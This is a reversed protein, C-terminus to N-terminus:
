FDFRGSLQTIRPDRTDTALGFTADNNIDTGVKRFNTHNLVNFFSAQLTFGYKEAFRFSKIAAVDVDAYGPGYLANRQVPVNCWLGNNVNGPCSYAGWSGARIYGNAPSVGHNISSGQSGTGTYIARENGRTGDKNPDYSGSTDKVTLPNGTQLEIIPAIQWGGLWPNKKKWPVEYNATLVFRHRVDFDAPGYDYAPNYSSTVGTNGNRQSFVDSIQDMAKSFTYNALLQLGSAYGKRLSLQGGSYNSSFINTRFNDNGFQTTARATSFGNPFGAATCAALQAGTATAPCASRGNFTNINMLGVLKRGFTGIYNAELVYGHAIQTEVGLHAQEYYATVLRQDIHRPVPLAGASALAANATFPVQYLTTRLNPDIPATGNGTGFANDVFFPANFRINEYVNNYLRDYGLGFGGRVVFKGNGLTDLSFGFRPAFNNTDKNWINHDKQIFQAGQLAGFLSDSPLFPNGTPTPTGFTGFYVNSDVGAKFNHPPGFYEWRLGYNLTLRPSIKWDSQAYASFENARYGRYPDPARKNTPDYAASAGYLSGDGNAGSFFQDQDEDALGDTLLGDVSWPNISGYFDNYFSSGNRTRAFRFGFKLTQKGVTKTLSDEYSFQNDTFSQPIGASAGFGTTLADATTISSIGQTGPAAFNAVHRLYSAKFVNLLTPTFTRTWTAGFIQSGGVVDEPPGVASDGGGNNQSTTFQDVIYSFSLQDKETLKHDLKFSGRNQNTQITQIVNGQGYVPVPFTVLKSSYDGGAANKYSDPITALPFSGPFKAYLQKFIPGLAGSHTFAGPCASGTKRQCVGAPDSEMFTRYQGSDVFDIFQQTTGTYTLPSGTRLRHFEATAFFFTKDKKIPGGLSGGFQNRVLHDRLGSQNSFYHNAALTQIRNYGFASGHWNNSGSKLVTDTAFGGARGYEAPPTSTIVRYEQIADPSITTVAGGSGYTVGAGGQGQDNNDFGDVLYNGAGSACWERRDGTL